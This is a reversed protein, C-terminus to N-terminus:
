LAFGLRTAPPRPAWLWSGTDLLLLLLELWPCACACARGTPKTAVAVLGQRPWVWTPEPLASEHLFYELSTKHKKRAKRGFTRSCAHEREPSARTGAKTHPLGRAAVATRPVPPGPRAPRQRSAAGCRGRGAAM